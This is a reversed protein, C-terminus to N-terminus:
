PRLSASVLIALGSQWPSAVQSSRLPDHISHLGRSPANLTGRPYPSSAGHAAGTGVSEAQPLGQPETHGFLLPRANWSLLRRTLILAHDMRRGFLLGRLLPVPVALENERRGFPEVFGGSAGRSVRVEGGADSVLARVSFPPPFPCFFRVKIRCSMTSAAMTGGHVFLWAIMVWSCRATSGEGHRLGGFM